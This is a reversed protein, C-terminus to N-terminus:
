NLQAVRYRVDRFQQRAPEGGSVGENQRSSLKHCHVVPDRAQQEGGPVSAELVSSRTFVFYESLLMYVNRISM